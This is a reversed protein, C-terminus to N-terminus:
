CDYEDAVYNNRSGSLSARSQGAARLRLLWLSGGFAGTKDGDELIVSAWHLTQSEPIAAVM